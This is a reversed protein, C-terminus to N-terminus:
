LIVATLWGRIRRLGAGAALATLAAALVLAKYAPNTTFLVIFLCTASWAAVARANMDPREPGRPWQRRLHLNTLQRSTTGALLKGTTFSSRRIGLKRWRGHAEPRWGYRGTPNTRRCASVSSSRSTISRAFPRVSVSRRRKISSAHSTWSPKATWVTVTS